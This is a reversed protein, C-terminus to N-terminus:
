DDDDDPCTLAIEVETTGDATVEIASQSTTCTRDVADLTHAGAPVAAFDFEGRDDTQVDREDATGKDLTVLAGEDRRGDKRVTGSVTGEGTAPPPPEPATVTVEKTIEAQAGDDDTVVLKVPYTGGTAYARSPNQASSSTGDGFTWSWAIVNGDGDSSADTFNATLGTTAHTFNATPPTNPATVNISVTAINSDVTGDNVKFTFSDPGTYGTNPFYSIFFTATANVGGISANPISLIGNSPISVITFTLPDNDSDSGNLFIDVFRDM